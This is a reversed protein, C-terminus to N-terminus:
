NGSRDKGLVRGQRRAEEIDRIAEREHSPGLEPNDEYALSPRYTASSTVRSTARTDNQKITKEWTALPVPKKFLLPDIVYPEVNGNVEVYIVNAVHHSTWTYTKDGASVELSNKMLGLTYLNRSPLVFIKASQVKCDSLLDGAILEARQNCVRSAVWDSNLAYRTKQKAIYAYVQSAEEVSLRSVQMPTEQFNAEQINDPVDTRNRDCRNLTQNTAEAATAVEQLKQPKLDRYECTSQKPKNLKDCVEVVNKQILSEISDEAHGHTLSFSTLIFLFISAM